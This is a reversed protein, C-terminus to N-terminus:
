DGITDVESRRAWHHYTGELEDIIAQRRTEDLDPALEDIADDTSVPPTQWFYGDVGESDLPFAADDPNIFTEHFGAVIDQNTMGFRYTRRM